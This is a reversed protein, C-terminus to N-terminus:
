DVLLVTTRYTDSTKGFTITGSEEVKVDLGISPAFYTTKRIDSAFSMAGSPVKAESREERDIIWVTVKKGAVSLEATGRVTARRHERIQTTGGPAEAECEADSAWERGASLPFRLHTIPDEYRCGYRGSQQFSIQEVGEATWRYVRAGEPSLVVRQLLGDADRQTAEVTLSKDDTEQDTKFRLHYVGPSPPGAASARGTAAGGGSGSAITAALDVRAPGNAAQTRDAADAADTATPPAAVPPPSLTRDTANGCAAALMVAAVAAFAALNM